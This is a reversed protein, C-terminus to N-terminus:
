QGSRRMVLALACIALLAVGAPLASKTPKPAPTSLSPSPVPVPTSGISLPKLTVSQTSTQGPLLRIEMTSTEYGENTVSLTHYTNASVDTFEVNWSGKGDGSSVECMRDLCVKGGDPTVYVVVSGTGTSAAPIPELNIERTVTPNKPDLYVQKLYPKYGEVGYVNVMYYKGTEINEFLISGVGDVTAPNAKCDTGFCVTGGGPHVNLQISGAAAAATQFLLLLLFLLFVKGSRQFFGMLSISCSASKLTTCLLPFFGYDRYAKKRKGILWGTCSSVTKDSGRGWWMMGLSRTPFMMSAM